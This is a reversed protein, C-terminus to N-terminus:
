RLVEDPLMLRLYKEFHRGTDSEASIDWLSTQMRRMAPVATIWAQTWGTEVSWVGWGADSNSAWHEWREYDFARFWAGDLEAHSESQVQIRCLFEALKDEANRYYMDGTAAFAEHLGLFAFNTTYLLDSLPDGNNQILPAETSGYEENSGPPGYRGRGSGIEERIAGCEAQYKVMEEAMMRLWQRHRPTDDVRVLWALPLLM